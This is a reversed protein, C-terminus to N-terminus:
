QEHLSMASMFDLLHLRIASVLRSPGVNAADSATPYPLYGERRRWRQGAPRMIPCMAPRGSSGAWRSLDAAAPGPPARPPVAQLRNCCRSRALDHRDAPIGCCVPMVPPLGNETMEASRGGWGPTPSSRAHRQDSPAPPNKGFMQRQVPLDPINVQHPKNSASPRCFTAPGFCRNPAKSSGFGASRRAIGNALEKGHLAPFQNDLAM